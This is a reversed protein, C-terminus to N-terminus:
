RTSMRDDEKRKGWQSGCKEPVVPKKLHEENWKSVSLSISSAWSKGATEEPSDILLHFHERSREQGEVGIGEEGGGDGGEKERREQISFDLAGWLDTGKITDKIFHQIYLGPVIKNWSNLFYFFKWINGQSRAIQFSREPGPKDALYCIKNRRSFAKELSYCM